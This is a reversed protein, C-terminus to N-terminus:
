SHYYSSLIVAPEGDSETVCSTVAPDLWVAAEAEYRALNEDAFPSGACDEASPNSTRAKAAAQERATTEDPARVVHGFYDDYGTKGIRKLLYIM